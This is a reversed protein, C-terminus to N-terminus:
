MKKGSTVALPCMPFCISDYPFMCWLKHCTRPRWGMPDSLLAQHETGLLPGIGPSDKKPVEASIVNWCLFRRNRVNRGFVSFIASLKWNQRFPTKMPQAYKYGISLGPLEASIAPLEASIQRCKEKVKSPCANLLWNQRFQDVIISNRRFGNKLAVGSFEASIRYRYFSGYM